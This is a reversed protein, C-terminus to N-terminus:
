RRRVPGDYPNSCARQVSALPSRGSVFGGRPWLCATPSKRHRGPPVAPDEYDRIVDRLIGVRRADDKVPKGIDARTVM